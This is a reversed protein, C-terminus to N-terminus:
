RQLPWRGRKASRSLGAAYLIEDSYANGIGSILAGRTLVGKIEGHFRNLRGQFEELSIGDLVDPGQDLLRPVQDMHESRVYYVMGMQRDDLYRLENGGSLALIFCTKKQVREKPLCYQLAGTLMPNIALCRDESLELLLYKGRRRCVGWTREQIDTQFVGALPRLVTPRLVRASDVAQGQIRTNLFDKIVELDPAEPM